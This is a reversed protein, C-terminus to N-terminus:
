QEERRTVLWSTTLVGRDRHFIEVRVQLADTSGPPVTSRLDTIDRWTLTITESWDELGAIEEGLGNRPPSYTIGEGDWNHLDDLDDVWTQPDSGDPGPPNDQDGPDPDSFPLRLTWERLEQAILVAQAAERGAATTQSGTGFGVAVAALGIGLIPVAVIVDALTFGRQRVPPSM